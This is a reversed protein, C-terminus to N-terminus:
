GELPFDPLELADDIRSLVPDILQPALIVLQERSCIALVALHTEAHGRELHFQGSVLIDSQSPIKRPDKGKGTLSDGAM